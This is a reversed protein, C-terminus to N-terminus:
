SPSLSVDLKVDALANEIELELMKSENILPTIDIHRPTRSDHPTRDHAAKDFAMARAVIPAFIMESSDRFISRRVVCGSELARLRPYAGVNSYTTKKMRKQCEFHYKLLGHYVNAPVSEMEPVYVDEIVFHILRSAFYEAESNWGHAVATFFMRFPDIDSCSRLSRQVFSMARPMKYKSAVALLTSASRSDKVEPDDIPYCLQLLPVLVAAPEDLALVPSTSSRSHVDLDSIRKHLIPSALSLVLTHVHLDVNDSSRVILDSDPQSFSPPPPTLDDLDNLPRAPIVGTDPECFTTAGGWRVYHILRYFAGASIANMNPVYALAAPTQAWEHAPFKGSLTDHKLIAAARFSKAASIAQGELGLRCAVAFVQLPEVNFADRLAKKMLKIPQEMDYKLASELVNGVEVIDAVVPDLIPYCIRLLHDLTQANEPVEIVPIGEATTTDDPHPTRSPQKLSFLTKFFPSALCLIVRVVYFDVKDSSRLVIDTDDTDDFPAQAVSSM